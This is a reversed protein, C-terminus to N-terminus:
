QKEEDSPKPALNPMPVPCGPPSGQFMDPIPVPFPEGLGIPDHRTEIPSAKSLAVRRIYEPCHWDKATNSLGPTSAYCNCAAPPVSAPGTEGRSARLLAFAHRMYERAVNMALVDEPAMDRGGCRDIWPLMGQAANLARAQEETLGLRSAGNMAAAVKTAQQETLGDVIESDTALGEADAPCVSWGDHKETDHWAVVRGPSARENQRPPGGISLKALICDDIRYPHTTDGNYSAAVDAAARAGRIWDPSMTGTTASQGADASTLTDLEAPTARLSVTADASLESVLGAWRGAWAISRLGDVTFGRRLVLGIEGSEVEILSGPTVNSLAVRPFVRGLQASRSALAWAALIRYGFDEAPDRWKGLYHFRPQYNDGDRVVAVPILEEDEIRDKITAAWVVMASEPDIMPLATAAPRSADVVRWAVFAARLANVRERHKDLMKACAGLLDRPMIDQANEFLNEVPDEGEETTLREIAVRLSEQAEEADSLFMRTTRGLRADALLRETASDADVDSLPAVPRSADCYNVVAHWATKAAPHFDGWAFLQAGPLAGDWALWAGEARAEPSADSAPWKRPEPDTLHPAESLVTWPRRAPALHAGLLARVTAASVLVTRSDGADTLDDVIARLQEPTLSVPRAALEARLREVDAEAAILRAAKKGYERHTDADITASCVHASREARLAVVEAALRAALKPGDSKSINGPQGAYVALEDDAVPDAPGRHAITNLVPTPAEIRYTEGDPDHDYEIPASARKDGYPNAGLDCDKGIPRAEHDGVAVGCSRVHDPLEESRPPDGNPADPGRLFAAIVAGVARGHATDTPQVTRAEALMRAVAPTGMGLRGLASRTEERTLSPLAPAGSGAAEARALTESAIRPPYPDPEGHAFADLRDQQRTFAASEEATLTPALPEGDTAIAQRGVHLAGRRHGLKRHEEDVVACDAHFACSEPRRTEPTVARHEPCPDAPTCAPTRETAVPHRPCPLAASKEPASQWRPENSNHCDGCYDGFVRARGCGNECVPHAAHWAAVERAVADRYARDCDFPNDRSAKEAVAVIRAREETPVTAFPETEASKQADLWQAHAALLDRVEGRMPGAAGSLWVRANDLMQVVSFDSLGLAALRKAAEKRGLMEPVNQQARYAAAERAVTAGAAADQDFPTERASRGASELIHTQEEEPLGALPDTNHSALIDHSCADADLDCFTGTTGTKTAPEGCTDCVPDAVRKAKPKAADIAADTIPSQAAPPGMDALLAAAGEAADPDALAAVLAVAHAQSEDPVVAPASPPAGIATWSKALRCPNEPLSVEGNARVWLRAGSGEVVVDCWGDGVYAAKAPGTSGDAFVIDVDRWDAGNRKKTQDTEATTM